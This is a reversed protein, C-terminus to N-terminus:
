LRGQRVPMGARIGRLFPHQLMLLSISFFFAMLFAIRIDKVNRYLLSEFGQHIFTVQRIISTDGTLYESLLECLLEDMYIFGVQKKILWPMHFHIKAFIRDAHAWILYGDTYDSLLGRQDDSADKSGLSAVPSPEYM